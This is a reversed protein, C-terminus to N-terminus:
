NEKELSEIKMSKEKVENRLANSVAELQQLRKSMSSLLDTDGQNQSSGRKATTTPMKSTVVPKHEISFLKKM